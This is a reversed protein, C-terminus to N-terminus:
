GARRLLAVVADGYAMAREWVAAEDAELQQLEPLREPRVQVGRGRGLFLNVRRGAEAGLGPLAPVPRGGLLDGDPVYAEHFAYYDRRHGQWSAQLALAAERVARVAPDGEPAVRGEPGAAPIAAWVGADRDNVRGCWWTPAGPMVAAAGLFVPPRRGAARRRLLAGARRLYAVQHVKCVAVARALEVALWRGAAADGRRVGRWRQRVAVEDAEKERAQAGLAALADAAALWTRPVLRHTMM